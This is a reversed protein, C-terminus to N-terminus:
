CASGYDQQRRLSRPGGVGGEWTEERIRGRIIKGPVGEMASEIAQDITVKANQSMRFKDRTSDAGGTGVALAVAILFPMVMVRRRDM